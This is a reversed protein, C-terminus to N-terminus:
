FGGSSRSRFGSLNLDFYYTKGKHVFPFCGDKNATLYFGAGWYRYNEDYSRGTNYNHDEQHILELHGQARNDGVLNRTFFRWQIHRDDVLEGDGDRMKLQEATHYLIKLGQHALMKEYLKERENTPIGQLEKEYFDKPIFFHSHGMDSFIIADVYNRKLANEIHARISKIFHDELRVYRTEGIVNIPIVIQGQENIFAREKLRKGDLYLRDARRMIEPLTSNWAFDENHVIPESSDQVTCTKARVVKEVSFSTVPLCFLLLISLFKM